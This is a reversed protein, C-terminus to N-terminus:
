DKTKKYKKKQKSQLIKMDTFNERYDKITQIEISSYHVVEQRQKNLDRYENKKFSALWQYNSSNHYQKPINDMVVGFYIRRAPLAPTFYAAILDGIKDWFNYFQELITSCTSLYRKDCFNPFYQFIVKGGVDVTATSPLYCGEPTEECGPAGSGATPEITVEAHDAFAAPAITGIGAVLAFLVFFSSITKTKM